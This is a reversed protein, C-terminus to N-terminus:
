VYPRWWSPKFFFNTGKCGTWVPETMTVQAQLYLLIKGTSNNWHTPMHGTLKLGLWLATVSSLRSQKSRNGAYKEKSVCCPHWCKDFCLFKQWRKYNDQLQGPWQTDTLVGELTKFSAHFHFRRQDFALIECHFEGPPCFGSQCRPYAARFISCLLSSLWLPSRWSLICGWVWVQKTKKKRSRGPSTKM